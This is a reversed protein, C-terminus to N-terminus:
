LAWDQSNSIFSGSAEEVLHMNRETIRKIHAFVSCWDVNMGLQTFDVPFTYSRVIHPFLTSFELVSTCVDM